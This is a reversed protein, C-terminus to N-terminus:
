YMYLITGLPIVGDGSAQYLDGRKLGGIVAAAHDAHSPLTGISFMSLTNNGGLKVRVSAPYPDTVTSTYDINNATVPLSTNTLDIDGTIQDFVFYRGLRITHDINSHSVTIHYGRWSATGKVGQTYYLGEVIHQSIEGATPLIYNWAASSEITINKQTMYRSGGNDIYSWGALANDEVHTIRELTCSDSSIKFITNTNDSYHRTLSLDVFYVNAIESGVPVGTTDVGYFTAWVRGIPSRLYVNGNIFRVTRVGYVQDFSIACNEMYYNEITLDIIDSSNSAGHTPVYAEIAVKSTADLFTMNSMKVNNIHHLFIDKDNNSFVINNFRGHICLTFYLGYCPSIVNKINMDSMTAIKPAGVATGTVNVEVANGSISNADVTFGSLGPNGGSLIIIPDTGSLKKVISYNIGAGQIIQNTVAHNGSTAYTTASLKVVSSTAIANNIGNTMDTTGPTTNPLFWEPYSYPLGTLTSAGLSIYGSDACELTRNGSLVVNGSLTAGATTVVIKKGVTDNDTLAKYLNPKATYTGNLSYVLVAADAGAVWMFVILM